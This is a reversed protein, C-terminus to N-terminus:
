FIIRLLDILLEFNLDFEPHFRFQDINMIRVYGPVLVRSLLNVTLEIHQFAKQNNEIFIHKLLSLIFYIFTYKFLFNTKHKVKLSLIGHFDMLNLFFRIIRLKIQFIIRHYFIQPM